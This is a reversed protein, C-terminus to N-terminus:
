RRMRLAATRLLPAFLGTRVALVLAQYHLGPIVIVQGTGLAAISPRVVEPSQMWVFSPVISHDFKRLDPRDHFGSATLGPCLAQVHVGQGAVEAALAESFTVLYRKTASYTVNGMMPIWAATSAVNVIAGHRRELLGPLAARALRVSAVVHLRIMDLQRSMDASVFRGATGFGANNVLVALDNMGALREEVTAVGADTSLDAPLAEARVGGYPALQAALAELKEAQRAVLVLDFGLAALQRAYEEGIGSSAGTILASGRGALFARNAAQVSRARVVMAATAAAMAAGTWFAGVAPRKKAPLM